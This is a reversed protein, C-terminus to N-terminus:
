EEPFLEQLIREKLQEPLAFEMVERVTTMADVRAVEELGPLSWIKHEPKGSNTYYRKLLYRATEPILVRGARKGSYFHGVEEGDESFFLWRWGSSRASWALEHHGWSLYRKGNITVIEM